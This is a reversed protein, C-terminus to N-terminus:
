SSKYYGPYLSADWWWHPTPRCPYSACVGTYFFFFVGDGDSTWQGGEGPTALRAWKCKSGGRLASLRFVHSFVFCFSRGPQKSYCNLRVSSLNFLKKIKNTEDRGLNLDSLDVCTGSSYNWPHVEQIYTLAITVLATPCAARQQASM